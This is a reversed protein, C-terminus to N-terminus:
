PAAVADARDIVLEDAATVNLPATLTTLAVPFGPTLRCFLLPVVVKLESLMELVFPVPSKALLAPVSSMLEVAFPVEPPVILAVFPVATSRSFVVRLTFRSLTELLPAVTPIFNILVLPVNKTKPSLEPVAPDPPVIWPAPVPTSTWFVPCTPRTNIFRLELPTPM